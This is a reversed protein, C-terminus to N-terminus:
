PQIGNASHGPGDIEAQATEAKENSGSREHVHDLFLVSGNFRVRWPELDAATVYKRGFHQKMDRWVAWPVFFFRDGIGACVAAVAGMRAHDELADQQPQTLVDRKMRDTTTFKAEFVISRGGALTGQFDPDARAIFRGKFIGNAFKELVRFPEPTKEVKARGITSYQECAAKIYGEFFHGQANNVKNQYQQLARRQEDLKMQPGEKRFLRRAKRHGSYVAARRFLPDNQYHKFAEEYGGFDLLAFDAMKVAEGRPFGAQEMFRVYGNRDEQQTRRRVGCKERPESQYCDDCCADCTYGREHNQPCFKPKVIECGCRQCFAPGVPVRPPRDSKKVVM